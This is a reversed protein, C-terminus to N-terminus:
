SIWEGEPANAAVVLRCPFGYGGRPRRRLRTTAAAVLDPLLVRLMEGDVKHEMSPVFVLATVGSVSLPGESCPGETDEPGPIESTQSPGLLNRLAGVPEGPGRM